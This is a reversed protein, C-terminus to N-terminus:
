TAIASAASQRIVDRVQMVVDDKMQTYISTMTSDWGLRQTLEDNSFRITRTTYRAIFPVARAAIACRRGEFRFPEILLAVVTAGAGLGVRAVIPAIQTGTKGGLGAILLVLTAGNTASRVSGLDTASLTRDIGSSLRLDLQREDTSRGILLSRDIGPVRERWVHEVMECGAGGVGLLYINPIRGPIATATARPSSAIAAHTRSGRTLAFLTASGFIFNRRNIM